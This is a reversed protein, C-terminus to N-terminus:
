RVRLVALQGSKPLAILTREQGPTAVRRMDASGFPIAAANFVQRALGPAGNRIARRCM